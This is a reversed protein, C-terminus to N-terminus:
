RSRAWKGLTKLIENAHGEADNSSWEEFSSFTSSGNLPGEPADLAYPGSTSAKWTGNSKFRWVYLSQKKTTFVAMKEIADPPRGLEGPHSLWSVMDAEAFADRSRLEAPIRKAAKLGKLLSYLSVRVTADAALGAIVEDSVVEKRRLLSTVAFVRPWAHPYKLTQRLIGVVKADGVFGAVDLLAAFDQRRQEAKESKGRGERSFKALNTALKKFAREVKAPKLTGSRMARLALDVVYVSAGEKVELLAPFLADGHKVHKSLETFLRQYTSKPWGHKQVIRTFCQAGERTTSSAVLTLLDLHLSPDAKAYRSEILQLVKPSASGIFCFVVDGPGRRLADDDHPFDLEFIAGLTALVLSEKFKVQKEWYPRRFQSLVETADRRVDEDSSLLSTLAARFPSDKPLAELASNETPM